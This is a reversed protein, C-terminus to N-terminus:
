VHAAGQIGPDHTYLGTFVSPYGNQKWTQRQGKGQGQQPLKRKNM